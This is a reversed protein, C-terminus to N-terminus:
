ILEDCVVEVKFSTEGVPLRVQVLKSRYGKRIGEFTYEGPKLQIERGPTFGVKGVGRVQIYTKNDSKVFVSVKVNLQALLAKLQSTQSKLTKSYSAFVRAQILREQAANFINQSTLRESRELYDALAAQLSVLKTALQLGDRISRDEPHRQLAGSYILQAKSWEDQAIAQKGAGVAQELDVTVSTKIIADNLVRLESRNAYLSKARNYNSRASKIQKKKLNLLARNILNSFKIEKIQESLQDRRQKLDVRDPVIEVAKALAAHEKQANNEIQAINAKKLLALLQPLLELKKEIAMAEPDNKKLSLAKQIHLKGEDYQDQKLAEKAMSLEASFVAERETLVQKALVELNTMTKLASSYDAMGFASILEKKLASLEIDKDLNWDKLNAEVIAPEVEQEYAQLRAMMQERLESQDAVFREVAPPKQSTSQQQPAPEFVKSNFYPMAMMMSLVVLGAIVFLYIIRKSQKASSESAQRLKEELM